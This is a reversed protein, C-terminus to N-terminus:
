FEWRIGGFFVRPLQYIPRSESYDRKYMYSNVNKVDFLNTIQVYASWGKLNFFPMTVKVDTTTYDPMRESNFKGSNPVYEDIAPQYDAGTVPTFPKGSCYKQTLAIKWKPSFTYNLILNFTHPRDSGARYWEGTPVSNDPKGYDAPNNRQTAQRESRVYSYTLWGDWDGGIKKQLMVDFGYARGIGNNTYNLEPDPDSIVLNRYTKYYTELQLTFDEAIDMKSGLIYHISEEAQLHPNGTEEDMFSADLPYQSYLGTAFYTEWDPGPKIKFALRPNAIWQNNRKFYQVNVGPNVYFFDKLIEIDDQIFGGAYYYALEKKQDM